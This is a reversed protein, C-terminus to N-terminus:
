AQTARWKKGRGCDSLSGNANGVRQSGGDDGGAAIRNLSDLGKPQASPWPFNRADGTGTAGKVFLCGARWQSSETTTEKKLRAVRQVMKAMTIVLSM